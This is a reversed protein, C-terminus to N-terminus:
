KRVTKVQIGSLHAYLSFLGQGHDLIVANGYIGSPRRFSWVTTPPRSRPRSTSALDVGMHTSEGLSQGNYRYYRHDGFLAM